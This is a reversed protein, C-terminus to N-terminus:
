GHTSAVTSPAIRLRRVDALGVPALAALLRAVTRDDLHCNRLVLESLSWLGILAAAAPAARSEARPRAEDAAPTRTIPPLHTLLATVLGDGLKNHSFQM